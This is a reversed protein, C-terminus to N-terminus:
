GRVVRVFADELTEGERVLEDLAGDARLRGEHLIAVRNCLREVESLVHSCILVASGGPKLTKSGRVRTAFESPISGRPRNTWCCSARLASWPRPLALGNASGGELPRCDPRPSARQAGRTRTDRRHCTDTRRGRNGHAHRSVRRTARREDPRPAGTTRALLGPLPPGRAPHPIPRSTPGVGVHASLLGPAPAPGHNKRCRQSGVPGPDRGRGTPDLCRGPCRTGRLAKWRPHTRPGVHPRTEGLIGKHAGM